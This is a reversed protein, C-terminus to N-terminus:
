GWFINKTSMETLPQTSGLAMSLCVCVCIYICMYMYIYIYVCVCLRCTSVRRVGIHLEWGRRVSVKRYTWDMSSKVGEALSWEGSVCCYPMFTLGAAVNMDRENVYLRHLIRYLRCFSLLSYFITVLGYLPEIGPSFSSRATQRGHRPTAGCPLSLASM